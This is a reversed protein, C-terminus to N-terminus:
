GDCKAPCIRVGQSAAVTNRKRRQWRHVALGVLGLSLLMTWATPEPVAAAAFFADAHAMLEGSSLASDYAAFGLITGAFSDDGLFSGGGMDTGGVAVPGHLTLAFPVTAGTNLGNVFLATTGAGGHVVFALHVDADYTTPVGFDYDAVGYRTAGYTGTNFWQEFRIAQSQGGTLSGLLSGAAARDGGNVIFEYTIDGSLAGINVISPTFINTAVFTSPTGADVEAAWQVLGADASSPMLGCALLAFTAALAGRFLTLRHPHIM